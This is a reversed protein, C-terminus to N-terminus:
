NLANRGRANEVAACAFQQEAAVKEAHMTKWKAWVFLLAYRLEADTTGEVWGPGVACHAGENDLGVGPMGPVEVWQVRLVQEAVTRDGAREISAAIVLNALTLRTKTRVHM